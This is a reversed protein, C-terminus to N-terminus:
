VIRKKIKKLRREKRKKSKKNELQQLYQRKLQKEKYKLQQKHQQDLNKIRSQERMREYRYVGFDSSSSGATSSWSQKLKYDKLVKDNNNNQMLKGDNDDDDNM